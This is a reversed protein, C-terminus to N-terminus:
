DPPTVSIVRSTSVGPEPGIEDRTCFKLGQQAQKSFKKEALKEGWAPAAYHNIVFYLM